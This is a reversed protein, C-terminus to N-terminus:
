NCDRDWLFFFWLAVFAVAFGFVFWVFGVLLCVVFCLSFAPVHHSHGIWFSSSLNHPSLM